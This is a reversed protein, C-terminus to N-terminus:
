PGAAATATVAAAAATTADDAPTPAAPTDSLANLLRTLLSLELPSIVVHLSHMTSEVSIQPQSGPTLQKIRISVIDDLGCFNGSALMLRTTPKAAASSNASLHGDTLDLYVALNKLAIQKERVPAIAANHAEAGAFATNETTDTFVIEALELSLTVTKHFMSDYHRLHVTINKFTAQFKALITQILVALDHVGREPSPQDDDYVSNEVAGGVEDAIKALSPDEKLCDRAISEALSETQKQARRRSSARTQVVFYLGDCQLSCADRLISSYPVTGGVQRIVGRVFKFPLNLDKTLENLVDCNLEVDSIKFVGNYLSLDIQESRIRTKLLKGLTMQLVVQVMRKGFGSFAPFM